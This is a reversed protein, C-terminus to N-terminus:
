KKTVGFDIVIPDLREHTITLKGKGKKGKTKVYTGTYGGRLPVIEPGILEINGSANFVIPDNSYTLVNGDKSQLAINICAVDYTTDEVLETHDVDVKLEIENVPAKTVTKVVKGDKVAEFTYVTVDSGWNGVYKYFLDFGDKVSIKETIMASGLGAINEPTFVGSFGNNMYGKVAKKIKDSSKESIGEKEVLLGGIFDDVKIPPHPLNGYKETDPEFKRVFDGNKYMNIYDANTFVYIDGICGAPHEGIDMSSSVELVPHDDQQSEYVAAALKHNRFMDLVGHYCIKDGSGFDKHTNYDAMCWGFCGSIGNDEVYMDNLVNAHRLAHSLRHEECDFSKTPFMHGNFESVLYPKWVKPTVKFKKTLGPNNGTHSFDNFAYVDELLSSMQIFRVGSTQRSDDLEHAIRNAEKYLKNDDQSENIRVGWLVISPHNRYQKVMDAVNELHQNKWADDGIHQWGPAETFVLLGLRDCANLFYKSQPYHSTRVANLGLEEKLVKADHEQVSKPMAYGVYPYSQHRNLGRIKIKKGNLYFGDKKFVAMRVGFFTEYTDLVNQSNTNNETEISETEENNIDKNEEALIVKAKYLIPNDINWDELKSSSLPIKFTNGEMKYFDTQIIPTDNNEEYIELGVFKGSINKGGVTIDTEINRWPMTNDITKVFVDKIYTENKVDIYAERYLGGYTLYDIVHGFPPVNLSERSDLVVKIENDEGYNVLDKIDVDFATYGCEHTACLKGNVFVEAKHAAGEFTLFLCKGKLEEPINIKKEYVSVFQYEQESFYNFPLVKNTHPLRVKERKKEGEKSFYWDDNLYIRQLSM